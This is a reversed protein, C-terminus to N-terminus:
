GIKYNLLARKIPDKYNEAIAKIRAYKHTKYAEHAESETKFYGIHSPSDKVKLQATYKNGKKYVGIKYKGRSMKCDCLLANLERDIFVCAYQSYTKNGQILIDKDLEKGKWDQSEMWSKFKSFLMWETHVDCDIYSANKKLRKPCYCRRLMDKWKIYYQCTVRVGNVLPNVIYDSDNIGVGFVLSRKAISMNSAPIKIFKM